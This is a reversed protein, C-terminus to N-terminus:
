DLAPYHEKIYEALEDVNEQTLEFPEEGDDKFIHILDAEAFQMRQVRETPVPRYITGPKFFQGRVIGCRRSDGLIEVVKCMWVTRAAGPVSFAADSKKAGCLVVIVDTLEVMKMNWGNFVDDDSSDAEDNVITKQKRPRKQLKRPKQIVSLKSSMCKRKRGRKKQLEVEPFGTDTPSVEAPAVEAGESAQDDNELDAAGTDKHNFLSNLTKQPMVAKGESAVMLERIQNLTEEAKLADFAKVAEQKFDDNWEGYMVQAYSWITPVVNPQEPTAFFEHVTKRSHALQKEQGLTLVGEGFDFHSGLPIKKLDALLSPIDKPVGQALVPYAELDAGKGENFFKNLARKIGRLERLIEPPVDHTDVVNHTIGGTIPQCNLPITGNTPTNMVDCGLMTRMNNILVRQDLNNAYRIRVWSKMSHGMRWKIWWSPINFKCDEEAAGYRTGYSSLGHIGYKANKKNRQDSINLNQKFVKYELSSADVAIIIRMLIIYMNALCLTGYCSPFWSAFTSRYCQEKKGKWLKKVFRKLKGKEMLYRVTEPKAFALTLLSFKEGLSFYLCDHTTMSQDDGPRSGEHISIMNHLILNALNVLRRTDNKITLDRLLESLLAMQVYYVIGVSACLGHKHLVMETETQTQTEPEANDETGSEDNVVTYTGDENKIPTSVITNLQKQDKLKTPKVKVIFRGAQRNKKRFDSIIASCTGDSLPNGVNLIPRETRFDEIIERDSWRRERGINFFARHIHGLIQKVYQVSRVSENDVIIVQLIDNLEKDSGYLLDFRPNKDDGALTKLWLVQKHTKEGYFNVFFRDHDVENTIGANIFHPKLADFATRRQSPQMHKLTNWSLLFMRANSCMVSNREGKRTFKKEKKPVVVTTTGQM